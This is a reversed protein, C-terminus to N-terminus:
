SLQCLLSLVNEKISKKKITSYNLSCKTEKSYVIDWGQCQDIDLQDNFCFFKEAFSMRIVPTM